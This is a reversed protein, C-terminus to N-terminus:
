GLSPQLNRNRIPKEFNFIFENLSTNKYRSHKFNQFEPISLNNKHNTIERGIAQGLGVPVANGIQRYQDSLTGGFKWDLPFEQIIKYEDINLPRIEEPHCLDTAPMAPNTVLTPSPKNWDLRRLFGTKGGGLHYAKGMAEEQLDDPLNKWNEGAKLLKYFRKRKDSYKIHDATHDNPLKKFAFELNRWEPLGFEPHNSHTPTLRNVPTKATTGIIVIRERSQPTGFNAANYLDFNLQYGAKEMRKVVYYLSSGKQSILEEPIQTSIEDQEELQFISSMLGRVNEIVFYKPRIEEITELYKLFVNGRDDSFGQRKGATSFAQCPPGGVILDVSNKDEINAFSLIEEATYNRIDGILGTDPENLHITNRSAKDIECALLINFGEKELGIDLGMAGSFFSLTTLSGKKISKKSKRDEITKKIM